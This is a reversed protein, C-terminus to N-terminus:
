KVQEIAIGCKKNKNPYWTLFSCKKPMCEIQYKTQACFGKGLSGIHNKILKNKAFKIKYKIFLIAFFFKWNNKISENHTPIKPYVSDRKLIFNGKNRASANVQVGYKKIPYACFLYYSCYFKDRKLKM